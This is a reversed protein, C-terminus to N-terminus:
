VAPLDDGVGDAAILFVDDGLGLLQLLLLLAVDFGFALLFFFEPLLALLHLLLGLILDLFLGGGLVAALGVLVACGLLRVFSILM